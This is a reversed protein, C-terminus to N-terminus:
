HKPFMRAPWSRATFTEEKFIRWSLEFIIRRAARPGRHEKWIIKCLFLLAWRLIILPLSLRHEFTMKEFSIKSATNRRNQHNRKAQLAFEIVKKMRKEYTHDRRTREFGLNAMENRQEPHDLYFKIKRSLEETNKSIEIEKGIKYFNEIGPTYDSLLFGGAGPVEFTRAKIQNPGKSNAFNLSIISNQIIKPIDEADVSGNPWGHGFCEVSIGHKKLDFVRQKRDGHAAGVFSVPYRCESSLIPSHLTDSKAAWQSLLVNQIGDRYYKQITGAYTTTMAHYYKGIFRSVERYKWSDDTTWSITAVSGMNRIHDLVETFIEYNIHVSFFVDPKEDQVKELLSKNLAVYNAYRSRDWSDFHCVQHGLNKFAPVFVSYETSTGRSVDGYQHKGFVCLVKM